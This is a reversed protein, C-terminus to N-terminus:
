IGLMERNNKIFFPLLKSEIVGKLDKDTLGFLQDSDWHESDLILHTKPDKSFIRFGEEFLEIYFGKFFDGTDQATFKTGAKKRGQTIRQTAYSYFGITRNNVDLGKSLQEKNLDLIDKQIQKM